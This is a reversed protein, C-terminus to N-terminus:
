SSIQPVFGLTNHSLLTLHNWHQKASISNFLSSSSSPEELSDAILYKRIKNLLRAALLCSCFLIRCGYAASKNICWLSSRSVLNLKSCGYQARWHQLLYFMFEHPPRNHSFNKTEFEARLEREASDDAYWHFTRRGEWGASPDHEKFFDILKERERELKLDRWLTILIEPLIDLRTLMRTDHAHSGSSFIRGCHFRTRTRYLWLCLGHNVLASACMFMTITCSSALKGHYNRRLDCNREFFNRERTAFAMTFRTLHTELQNCASSFWLFNM